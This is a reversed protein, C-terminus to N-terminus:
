YSKIKKLENLCHNFDNTDFYFLARFYIFIEPEPPNQKIADQLIGLAENTRGQSHISVALYLQGYIDPAKTMYANLKQEAEKFESKHIHSQAQRLFHDKEGFLSKM